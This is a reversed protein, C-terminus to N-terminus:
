VSLYGNGCLEQIILQHCRQQEQHKFTSIQNGHRRYYNLVQPINHLRLGRKVLKIWLAFDQAYPVYVMDNIGWGGVDKVSQTRIVSGSGPLIGALDQLGNYVDGDRKIVYDILRGDEDIFQLWSGCAVYDLHDDLYGIQKGFTEKDQLDDADFRTVYTGKVKILLDNYIKTQGLKEYRHIKVRLDKIGELFTFLDGIDGDCGILFEFNSFTQTLVSSIAQQLWQLAKPHGNNYVSMIVSLKPFCELRSRLQRVYRMFKDNPMKYLNDLIQRNKQYNPQKAGDVDNRTHYLHYLNFEKEIKGQLKWLKILKKARYFFENDEGGWGVFDENYGGISLYADRKYIGTGGYAELSRIPLRADTSSLVNTKLLVKTLIESVDLAFIYPICLPFNKEYIMSLGYRLTDSRLICDADQCIVVATSAKSVAFNFNKSRNYLGDDYLFFYKVFDPLVGDIKPSTDSEVVIFSDDPSIKRFWNLVFLLLNRRDISSERYGLCFTVDSM